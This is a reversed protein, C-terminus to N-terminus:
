AFYRVFNELIRPGHPTPRLGAYLGRLREKPDRGLREAEAELKSTRAEILAKMTASDIEPHFQVARVYDGVRFAQNRTNDNHALLEAESPVGDVVDEHTAQVAFSASIGEFLPDERGAATLTCEISGIERGRPNKRVPTGYMHALLQHGFCVGLVPVRKAAANLMYEGAEEMWPALETVSLPSGTMILGDYATVDHPLREGAYAQVIQFRVGSPGLTQVFWQDYDGLRTRVGPNATGSKLILVNKM